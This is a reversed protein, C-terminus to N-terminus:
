AFTKAKNITSNSACTKFATNKIWRNTAEAKKDVAAGTIPIKIKEDFFCICWKTM